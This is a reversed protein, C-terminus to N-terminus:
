SGTKGVSFITAQQESQRLRRSAILQGKENYTLLQQTDFDRVIYQKGTERIKKTRLIELKQETSQVLPKMEDKAEKILHKLKQKERSLVINEAVYETRFFEEEEETIPREYEDTELIDDAHAELFHRKQLETKGELALEFDTM